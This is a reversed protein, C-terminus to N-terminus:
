STTSRACTACWNPSTSRRSQEERLHPHRLPLRRRRFISAARACGITCSRMRGRTARMVSRRPRRRLIDDLKRSCARLHPRHEAHDADHRSRSNKKFELFDFYYGRDTVKRARAFRKKPFASSRSARAAARAGKALRDAARRHRTCGDPDAGRLVVLGRGRHARGGPYKRWRAAFRRCAPEDRRHLNRQSDAHRRRIRRDRTERRDGRRRDAQGMGGPAAEAEKGCRRAVDLWKDSFAGCM